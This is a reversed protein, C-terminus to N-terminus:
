LIPRTCFPILLSYDITWVLVNQIHYVGYWIFHKVEINYTASQYVVVPVIVVPTYECLVAWDPIWCKILMANKKNKKMDNCGSYDTYKM